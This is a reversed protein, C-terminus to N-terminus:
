RNRGTDAQMGIKDRADRLAPQCIILLGHQFPM